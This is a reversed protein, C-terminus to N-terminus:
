NDGISKLGSIRMFCISKGARVTLSHGVGYKNGSVMIGNEFPTANVNTTIEMSSYGEKSSKVLIGLDNPNFEFGDEVDIDIIKGLNMNKSDDYLNEGDKMGEVVFDEVEEVYFKMEYMNQTQPTVTGTNRGKIKIFLFAAVGIILVILLLDIINIKGFLKGDKDIM